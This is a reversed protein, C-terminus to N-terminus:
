SIVNDINLNVVADETGWKVVHLKAFITFTTTGAGTTRFDFVSVKTDGSTIAWDSVVPHGSNLTFTKGTLIYKLVVRYTDREDSSVRTISQSDVALATAGNISVGSTATTATITLM